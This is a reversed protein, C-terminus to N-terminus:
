AQTCGEVRGTKYLAESQPNTTKIPRTETVAVQFTKTVYRVPFEELVFLPFWREKIADWWTAPYGITETRYAPVKLPGVSDPELKIDMLPPPNSVVEIRFATPVSSWFPDHLEARALTENILTTLKARFVRGDFPACAYTNIVFLGAESKTEPKPQTGAVLAKDSRARLAPGSLPDLARVSETMSESVGKILDKTFQRQKDVSKSSRVSRKRKTTTM